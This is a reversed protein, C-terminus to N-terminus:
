DIPLSASFLSADLNYQHYDYLASWQRLDVDALDQERMNVVFLDSAGLAWKKREGDAVRKSNEYEIKSVQWKRHSTESASVSYRYQQEIQQQAYLLEKEVAKKKYHYAVSKGRAKRNELPFDFNVGVQLIHDGYGPRNSLEQAGSVDVNLGPLKAQNNLDYEAQNLQQEFNLITIQPNTKMGSALGPTRKNLLIVEANQVSSVQVPKGEQDRVFLALDAELKRLEVEAKLVEGQRKNIQRANDTVKLRDSDGAKFKKELMKQREQALGLLQRYVELRKLGLVWRYYSSLGKHVYMLKKLKVEQAAQERRIQSMRLNTRYADTQLNRLIPLTIGAFVQGATSTDKKLDYYNFSGAGQRHGAVLKAGGWPTQRELYTEYYENNYPQQRWLRTKFRLKHDFEGKAATVEGEASDAKLNAEDILPFHTLVSKIVDQESLCWASSSYLLIFIFIKM